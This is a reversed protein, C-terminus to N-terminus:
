FPGSYIRKKTQAKIGRQALFAHCADVLQDLSFPAETCDVHGRIYTTDNGGGFTCGRAEVFDLIFWDHIEDSLALDTEATFDIRIDFGCYM